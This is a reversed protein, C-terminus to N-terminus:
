FKLNEFPTKAYVNLILRKEGFLSFKPSLMDDLIIFIEAEFCVDNNEELTKDFYYCFAAFYIFIVADHIFSYLNKL